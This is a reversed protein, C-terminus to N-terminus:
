SNEPLIKNLNDVTQRIEINCDFRCESIMNESLLNRKALEGVINERCCSCLSKEYAFMLLDNLLSNPTDIERATDIIKFM